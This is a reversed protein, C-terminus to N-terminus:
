VKVAEVNVTVDGKLLINNQVTEIDYTDPDAYINLTGASALQPNFNVLVLKGTTYDITGATGSQLEGEQYLYLNGDGDDDVSMSQGASNTWDLVFSSTKIPNNFSITYTFDANKFAESIELDNRLKFTVYNSFISEDTLDIESVLESYKLTANFTYLNNTFHDDITTDVLNQIDSSLLTTLHANYKVNATVDIYSYSPDVLVPVIGTVKVADLFNLIDTKASDSLTEGSDPKISIMVRGYFPPDNEEGGWVNLAQIYSFEKLLISAYDNETVTRNQSQYFLPANHKIREISEKDAGEASKVDTTVTFDGKQLGDFGANLSFNQIGNAASGKNVLNEVYIVNGNILAKGIVDNGFYIEVKSEVTERYFYAETEATIDVINEYNLWEVLDTTSANEKIHVTLKNLDVNENELIYRDGSDEVYTWEDTVITGQHIPITATATSTDSVMIYESLTVFPFGNGYADVGQFVTGKPITLDTASSASITITAVAASSQTPVYNLELAKSVVSSRLLGTTIFMENFTMNGYLGMYHTAYALLDMLINMGSGDFDYDTFESQSSLYTKINQKILAFDLENVNLSGM